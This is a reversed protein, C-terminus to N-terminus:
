QVLDEKTNYLMVCVVRVVSIFISYMFLLNLAIGEGFLANLGQVYFTTNLRYGDVIVNIFQTLFIMFVLYDFKVRMRKISFILIYLSGILSFSTFNMIRYVLNPSGYTFFLHLAVFVGYTVMLPRRWGQFRFMRAMGYYVMYIGGIVMLNGLVVSVFQPTYDRLAILLTGLANISYGIAMQKIYTKRYVNYIIFFATSIGILTLTYYLSLLRSDFYKIADM